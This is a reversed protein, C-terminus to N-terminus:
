PPKNTLNSPNPIILGKDHFHKITTRLGPLLKDQDSHHTVRAEPKPYNVKLTIEKTNTMEITKKPQADRIGTM